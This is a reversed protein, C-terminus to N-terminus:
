KRRYIRLPGDGGYDALGVREVTDVLVFERALIEALGRRLRIFYAARSTDDAAPHPTELEEAIKWWDLFLTTKTENFALASEIDFAHPLYHRISPTLRRVFGFALHTADPPAHLEAALLYHPPVNGYVVDGPLAHVAIRAAGEDIRSHDTRWQRPRVDLYPYTAVTALWAAAALGAWKRNIGVLTWQRVVLAAVVFVGLAHYLAYSAVAAPGFPTLNACASGVLLLGAVAVRHERTVGLVFRPRRLHRLGPTVAILMAVGMLQATSSWSVLVRSFAVSRGGLFNERDASMAIPVYGLLGRLETPDSLWLLVPIALAAAVVHNLLARRKEARAKLLCCVLMGVHLPLVNARVLAAGCTLWPAWTAGFRESDFIYAAVALACLGATVSHPTATVEMLVIRPDIAFVLFVTAALALDAARMSRVVIWLSLMFLLACVVRGVLLSPGFAAQFAGVFYYFFVPIKCTIDEFPDGGGATIMWGDYLYGGEDLWSARVIVWLAAQVAILLLLVVHARPTGAWHRARDAFHGHESPTM